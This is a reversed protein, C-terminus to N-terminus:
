YQVFKEEVLLDKGTEPDIIVSRGKMLKVMRVNKERGTSNTISHLTLNTAGHTKMIYTSLKDRDEQSDWDTKWTVAKRPPLSFETNNDTDAMHGGLKM